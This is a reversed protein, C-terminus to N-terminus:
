SGFSGSNRHQFRRNANVLKFRLRCCFAVLPCPHTMESYALADYRPQFIGPLVLAFPFIHILVYAHGDHIVSDVQM